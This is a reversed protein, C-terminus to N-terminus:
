IKPHCRRWCRPCTKFTWVSSSSCCSNPQTGLIKPAAAIAGLHLMSSLVCYCCVAALFLLLWWTAIPRVCSCSPTPPPPTPCASPTCTCAAANGNREFVAPPIQFYFQFCLQSILFLPPYCCYYVLVPYYPTGRDNFHHPAYPSNRHFKEDGM